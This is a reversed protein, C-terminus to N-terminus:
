ANRLLLPLADGHVENNNNGLIVGPGRSTVHFRSGYAVGLQGCQTAHFCVYSLHCPFPFLTEFSQCLMISFDSYSSEHASISIDLIVDLCLYISQVLEQSVLVIQFNILFDLIFMPFWLHCTGSGHPNVQTTYPQYSDTSVMLRIPHM